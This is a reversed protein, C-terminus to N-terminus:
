WLDFLEAWVDLLFIESFNIINVNEYNKIKPSCCSFTTSETIFFFFILVCYFPKNFERWKENTRRTLENNDCESMEVRKKRRLANIMQTFDRLNPYKKERLKAVPQLWQQSIFINRTSFNSSFSKKAITFYWIQLIMFFYFELSILSM